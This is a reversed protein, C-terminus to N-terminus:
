TAAASAKNSTALAVMLLSKAFSLPYACSNKLVNFHPALRSTISRVHMPTIALSYLSVPSGMDMANTPREYASGNMPNDSTPPWKASLSLLFFISSMLMVPMAAQESM